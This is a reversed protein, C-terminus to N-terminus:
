SNFPKMEMDGGYKLMDLRISEGGYKPMNLIGYM